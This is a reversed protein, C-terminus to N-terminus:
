VCNFFTYFTKSVYRFAHEMMSISGGCHLSAGPNVARNKKNQEQLKKFDPNNWHALLSEWISDAIWYPKKQKKRAENFAGSLM